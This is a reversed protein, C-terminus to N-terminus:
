RGVKKIGRDVNLSFSFPIKAGFPPLNSSNRTVTEHMALMKLSEFVQERERNNQVYGEVLMVQDQVQFRVIDITAGTKSPLTDSVKKLWEVASNMQYYVEASKFDSVVTKNDKLAKTIAAPTAKKRAIGLAAEATKGLNTHVESALANTFDARLMSWVYLIVFVTFVIQLTTAWRGWFDHLRNDKIAFENKLFNIAPNRPKKLGEIALGLSIPASVDNLDSKEFYVQSYSDLISMRNCPVELHQTLYPGLGQVLSMGGTIEIKSVECNLEAKIELISIQLDRIFDRVSRAILESFAKAETSLEEKKTLIFGKTELEKHAESLPLNYKKAIAEGIYKGGWLITRVAILKGADFVSVLTHSHGMNLMLSVKKSVIQTIEDLVVNNTTTIRTGVPENWKEVLNAFASGENSVIDAQVSCEKMVQVIRAVEEKKVAFALIESTPPTINQMKFDFVANDLSFPIEDELELPLTKAIKNRDVFPFTKQRVAVKDQRIGVVFKTQTADYKAVLNRLFEIVEFHTDTNPKITLPHTYFHVLQFGKSSSNIEMVKICYSGIDIGVSKM